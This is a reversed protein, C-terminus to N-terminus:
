MRGCSQRDTQRQPRVILDDPGSPPPADYHRVFSSLKLPLFVPYHGRYHYNVSLLTYADSTEQISVVVIAFAINYPHSGTSIVSLNALLIRYM